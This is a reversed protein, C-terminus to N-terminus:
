IHLALRISVVKYPDLKSDGFAGASWSTTRIDEVEVAELSLAVLISPKQEKSIRAM